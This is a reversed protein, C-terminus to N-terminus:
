PDPKSHAAASTASAADSRATACARFTAVAEIPRNAQSSAYAAPAALFILWVPTQNLIRDSVLLIIKSSNRLKLLKLLLM